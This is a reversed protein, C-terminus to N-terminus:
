NVHQNIKINSILFANQFLITIQNQIEKWTTFFLTRQKILSKIQQYLYHLRLCKLAKRSFCLVKCPQVQVTEAMLWYIASVACIQDLNSYLVSSFSRRKNEKEKKVFSLHLLSHPKTFIIKHCINSKLICM